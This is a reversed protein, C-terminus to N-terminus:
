SPIPWLSEEALWNIVIPGLAEPRELPLLHGAEAIEEFRARSGIATAWQRHWATPCLRDEAGCALLVPVRIGPLAPRLDGRLRLAERSSRM